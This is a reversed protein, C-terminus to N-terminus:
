PPVDHDVNSNDAGPADTLNVRAADKGSHRLRANQGDSVGKHLGFHGLPRLVRADLAHVRFILLNQLILSDIRNEDAGGGVEMRLEREFGDRGALVDKAVLGDILAARANLFHFGCQGSGGFLEYILDAEVAAVIM